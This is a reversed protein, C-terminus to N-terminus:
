KTGEDDDDDSHKEEQVIPHLISESKQGKIAAQKPSACLIEMTYDDGETM